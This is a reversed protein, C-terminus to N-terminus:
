SNTKTKSNVSKVEKATVTTKVTENVPCRYYLAKQNKDFHIVVKVDLKKAQARIRQQLSNFKKGEEVNAIMYSQGSKSSELLSNIIQQLEASTRGSRTIQPFTDVTQINLTMQYNRIEQPNETPKQWRISLYWARVSEATWVCHIKLNKIRKAFHRIQNEIM